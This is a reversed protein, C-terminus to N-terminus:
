CLDVFKRSAILELALSKIAKSYRREPFEVFFKMSSKMEQAILQDHTRTLLANVAPMFESASRAVIVSPHNLFESVHTVKRFMKWVSGEDEEDPIFCLIPKGHLAAEILITSLPSIVADVANLLSHTEEYPTIYFGKNRCCAVDELFGRMSSEIIINNFKESLIEKAYEAAIGYPHPRYLVIIKELNGQTIEADLWRLHTAERNGKSSGAYLVVKRDASIENAKFIAEKANVASDLFVQFQAAGFKHIREPPIGMFKEAHRKTQDGWVVVADPVGIAGRKLCPNDWSNMLLIMPINESRSSNILDNVYYGEFTSPHIIVDPREQELLDHLAKAPTLKLQRKFWANTLQRILPLAFVSFIIGAKWGIMAMWANRVGRWEPDLRLRAQDVFFIKKFISRRRVPIEVRCARFGWRHIDPSNIIRNWDSPPFVLLVDNDESLERFVASDLFHRIVM